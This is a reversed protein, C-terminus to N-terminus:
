PIIRATGSGTGIGVTLGGTGRVFTKQRYEQGSRTVIESHDANWPCVIRGNSFLCFMTFTGTPDNGNLDLVADGSGSSLSLSYQEGTPLDVTVNGSGSTFSGGAWVTVESASVNGSGSTVSFNGQTSKVNIRGSGTELAFEGSSSGVTILGSGSQLAFSGSSSAIEIRGSGSAGRFTGGANDIVIEGSGSACVASVSVREFSIDGSGSSILLDPSGPVAITWRSWWGSTNRTDAILERIILSSGTDDFDTAFMEPDVEGVVEIHISDGSGQVIQVEGIITEIQLGNRLPLSHTMAIPEVDKPQTPFICSSLLVLGAVPFIPIIKRV